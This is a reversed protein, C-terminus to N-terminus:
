KSGITGNGSEEKDLFQILAERIVDSQRGRLISYKKTVYAKLRSNEEKSIDACVRPMYDM